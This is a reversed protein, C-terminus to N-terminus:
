SMRVPRKIGGARQTVVHRPGLLIQPRLLDSRGLFLGRRRHCFLRSFEGVRFALALCGWHRRKEWVENASDPLGSDSCPPSGFWIITATMGGTQWDQASLHVSFKPPSFPFVQSLLVESSPRQLSPFWIGDALAKACMIATDGDTVRHPTHM